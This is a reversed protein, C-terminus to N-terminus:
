RKTKRRTYMAYIATGLSAIISPILVLVWWRINVADKGTSWSVGLKPAYDPGYDYSHVRFSKDIPNHCAIFLLTIANGSSWGPRNTIESIINELAAKKVWGIGLDDDVWGMGARTRPRETQDLINQSDVFNRSDDVANGYIDCNVDDHGASFVYLSVSASTITAGQPITVNTFRLASSWRESDVIQSYINLYETSYFFLGFGSEIADDGSASVYFEANLSVSGSALNGSIHFFALTFLLISRVLFRDLRITRRENM